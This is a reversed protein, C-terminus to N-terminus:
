GALSGSGGHGYCHALMKHESVAIGECRIRERGPRLGVWVNEQTAQQLSPFLAGVDEMIKASDHLTPITNHDHRQATGGLVVNDM